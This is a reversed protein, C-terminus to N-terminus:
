ISKIQEVNDKRKTFLNENNICYSMTIPSNDLILMTNGDSILIRGVSVGLSHTNMYWVSGIFLVVLGLVIGIVIRIKKKM